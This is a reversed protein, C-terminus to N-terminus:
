KDGSKVFAIYHGYGISGSHSVIAYLSYTSTVPHENYSLLLYKDIKLEFPISIHKRNKKAHDMGLIFRKLNIILIKPPDL